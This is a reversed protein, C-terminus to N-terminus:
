PNARTTLIHRVATIDAAVSKGALHYCVGAPIVLLQFCVLGISYNLPPPFDATLVTFLWGALTVSFAHGIARSLRHLGIVTGRHEPLNLDTILAAWNPLEIAYLAMGITAVLFAGAMWGNNFLAQLVSFGIQWTTETALLVGQFPWFFLLMFFPISGFLGIMALYIRGNAQRRQWRDGWYGAPVAFLFGANFLLVFLNGAVTATELDYGVAQVKAVAWLPVWTTSGYALSYFFSQVTLWRNARRAFIAPIEQWRIHHIYQGGAAFFGALEPEGRGRPLEPAFTYLTAFFLGFGALLWFPWRWDQAALSSALLTGLAAGGAQGLSWLSFILGRRRAPIFDAVVAFGVSAVCGVGVATILQFGTFQGLTLSFGSGAMGVVWVLTGVLLLRKRNGRDGQYGWFLAASALLLLYVATLSGLAAENTDFQRALLAYIAPLVAVM